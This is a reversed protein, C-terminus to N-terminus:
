IRLYEDLLGESELKGIWDVIGVGCKIRGMLVGLITDVIEETSRCSADLECVRDEGYVKIVDVLCVDLIECALNEWLKDGSFNSQEMLRRLEVPDRRLVFVYSALRKPVVDAAYHGDIVIDKRDCEMIIRRVRGRMKRMNVVISNRREDKGLIINESIALETLNVYQGELKTTLTQAVLTKGVRPTGTILIVRKSMLCSRMIGTTCVNFILRGFDKNGVIRM